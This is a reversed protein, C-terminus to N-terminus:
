FSEFNDQTLITKIAEKLRQFNEERDKKYNPLKPEWSGRYIYKKEALFDIVEQSVEEAKEDSAEKPGMCAM